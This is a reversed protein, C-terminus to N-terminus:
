ERLQSLVSKIDPRKSAACTFFQEILTKFLNREFKALKPHPKSIIHSIRTFPLKLNVIEFFVCFLSWTDVSHDYKQEEIVEPAM